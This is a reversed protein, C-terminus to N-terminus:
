DNTDDGDQTAEEIKKQEKEKILFEQRKKAIFPLISVLEDICSPPLAVVHKKLMLAYDKSDAIKKALGICLSRGGNSWETYRVTLRRGWKDSKQSEWNLLIKM